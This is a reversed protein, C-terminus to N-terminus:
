QNENTEEPEALQARLYAISKRSGWFLKGDVKESYDALAPHSSWAGGISLAVREAVERSTLLEAFPLKEVMAIIKQARPPVLGSTSKGTTTGSVKFGAPLPM